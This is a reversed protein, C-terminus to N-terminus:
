LPKKDLLIPGKEGTRRLGDSIEAESGKLQVTVRFVERDGSKASRVSATIGKQSLKKALTEAQDKAPFSAVQYTAQYRGSEKKEFPSKPDVKPKAAEEAGPRAPAAPAKAPPAAAPVRADPLDHGKLDHGKVDHGKPAQAKPPDAPSKQGAPKQTSEAVVEGGKAQLDEMFGLEEPKLVKPPEAAPEEPLRAETTPMIKALEPVAAEPRYGRGVLIGLIFVWCMGLVVVIGVSIVGSMTIEFSFKRPGNKDRSVDFRNLLKM